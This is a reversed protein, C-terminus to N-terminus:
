LQSDILAQSRSDLLHHDPIEYRNGEADRILVRSGLVQVDRQGSRIEFRRRGRDTEVDWAPVHFREDIGIVRVIYPVFYLRELEAELLRRSCDDVQRLDAIIGLEDGARDRVSIMRWIASHPFGRVLRIGAVRDGDRELVLDEYKDRAFRLCRPDLLNLEQELPYEKEM